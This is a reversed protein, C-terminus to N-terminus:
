AASTATNCLIALVHETVRNVKSQPTNCRDVQTISRNRQLATANAVVLSRIKHM